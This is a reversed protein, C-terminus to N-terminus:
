TYMVNNLEHHWKIEKINAEPTSIRRLVKDLSNTGEVKRTLKALADGIKIFSVSEPIEAHKIMHSYGEETYCDKVPKSPVVKPAFDFEGDGSTTIQCYVIDRDKNYEQTDIRTLAGCRVVVSNGVYVDGYPSHDHGLFVTNYGLTRIDDPSLSEYGKDPQNYYKHALLIKKGTKDVPIDKAEEEVDVAYFKLGALEFEERYKVDYAGTIKLFGVTTKNNSSMNRNFIDHNGYIGIFKGKYKMFLTYVCYLFYTSNAPSHCLDGLVIVYDNNQAIYELKGMATELFNDRRCSHNREVLHVDNVIAIKTEM